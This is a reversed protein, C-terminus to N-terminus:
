AEDRGGQALAALQHKGRGRRNRGGIRGAARATESNWRYARGLKWAMRGGMQAVAYRGEASLSAFGRGKQKGWEVDIM